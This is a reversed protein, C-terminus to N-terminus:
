GSARHQRQWRLVWEVLIGIDQSTELVRCIKKRLESGEETENGPIGGTDVVSIRGNLGIEFSISMNVPGSEWSPRSSGFCPENVAFLLMIVPAQGLPARLTVDVKVDDETSSNSSMGVAPSKLGNNESHDGIQFGKLLSNLKTENPDENSLTILGDNEKPVGPASINPFLKTLVSDKSATTEEAKKGDGKKSPLSFVKRIM